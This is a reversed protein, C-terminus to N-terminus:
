FEGEFIFDDQSSHEIMFNIISEVMAIFWQNDTRQDSNKLRQIQQQLKEIDRQHLILVDGDVNIGDESFTCDDESVYEYSEETYRILHYEGIALEESIRYMESNQEGFVYKWVMEDKGAIKCNIYRGM